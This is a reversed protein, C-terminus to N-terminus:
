LSGLDSATTAILERRRKQMDRFWFNSRPLFLLGVALTRITFGLPEIRHYPALSDSIRAAGSFGIRSAIWGVGILLPLRVLGHGRAVSIICAAQFLLGLMGILENLGPWPRLDNSFPLIGLQDLTSILAEYTSFGLGLWLMGLAISVEHPRRMLIEPRKLGTGGEM